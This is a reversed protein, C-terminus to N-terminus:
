SLLLQLEPGTTKLEEVGTINSEQFRMKSGKFLMGFGLKKNQFIKHPSNALIIYIIKTFQSICKDDMSYTIFLIDYHM